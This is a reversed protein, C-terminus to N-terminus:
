VPVVVMLAPVKAMLWALPKPPVPAPVITALPAVSSRRPTVAPASAMVRFPPVKAEEVPVILKVPDTVRPASLVTFTEPVSSASAPTTEPPYPMVLVPAPVKNSDRAM